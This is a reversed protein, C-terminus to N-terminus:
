KSFEDEIAMIIEVHDLSDLGLDNMFHSQLTLQLSFYLSYRKMYMKQVQVDVNLIWKIWVFLFDFFMTTTLNMWEIKLMDIVKEADIKDYLRLVLLVRENVLHISLPEGGM